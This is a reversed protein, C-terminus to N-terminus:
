TKARRRAAIEAMKARYEDTDRVVAMHSSVMDLHTMLSLDAAQYVARKSMRVAPSSQAAICRALEYTSSMLQDDPVVRTVVGLERAEEATLKRGTWILELVHDLRILRRLYWAGGDGAMLGLDIYSEAVTASAAAIRIDCMLAMDLGAGRAAGNIAAIVPKDLQEMTIAIRHVNRFLFDKRELATEPTESRRKMDSTDGGACFARGAGTLVIVKVAPDDACKLLAANWADLMERNFANMKDPRNLTLTAVGYDDTNLLITM